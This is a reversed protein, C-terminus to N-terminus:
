CVCLCMCVILIASIFKRISTFNIITKLVTFQHKSDDTFNDMQPAFDIQMEIPLFLKCIIMKRYNIPNHFLQTLSLLSEPGQLIM